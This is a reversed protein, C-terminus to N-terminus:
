AQFEPQAPRTGKETDETNETTLREWEAVPRFSRRHVGCPGHRTLAELHAPTPYGKHRSFGYAPYEADLEVMLADRRVKAVISAAAISLCLVDGKVIARHECPLGTVPLGDVLAYNPTPVLQQLARAMALHSARLINLADIEDPTAVSWALAVANTEIEVLVSERQEPTLQKSDRLLPHAWSEPLIVAAAVVPGALPGRGAEDVGAVWQWGEARARREWEDTCAPRPVELLLPAIDEPQRKRPM